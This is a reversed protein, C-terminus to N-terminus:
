FPPNGRKLSANGNTLSKEQCEASFLIHHILYLQL